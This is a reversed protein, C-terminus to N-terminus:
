AGSPVTAAGVVDTVARNSNRCYAYATVAGSGDKNLATVTWAQTGSRESSVVFLRNVGTVPPLTYGGGVAQKGSPCSAVATSVQGDSNTPNGTATATVVPGLGKKKHKKKAEAPAAFVAVSLCAVTVLMGWPKM